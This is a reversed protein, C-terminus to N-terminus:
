VTATPFDEWAFPAWDMAMPPPSPECPLRAVAPAFASPSSDMAMPPSAVALPSAEIAMPLSSKYKFLLFPLGLYVLPGILVRISLWLTNFCIRSEFSLLTFYLRVAASPCALVATPVM